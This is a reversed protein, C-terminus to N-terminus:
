NCPTVTVSHTRQRHLAVLPRAVTLALGVDDPPPAVSALLVLEVDRGATDTLGRGGRDISLLRLEVLCTDKYQVYQLQYM